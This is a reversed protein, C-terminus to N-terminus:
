ELIIRHSHTYVNMKQKRVFCVLTVGTKEAAIIGSRIPAAKTVLIPIGMRAAKLVMDAPQRGSSVLVSKSFDSKLEIGVGIVKDLTNHRGVDEALTVFQSDEFLAAVHVGGTLQFLTGENLRQVMQIISRAKIQYKSNVYCQPEGSIIQYFKNVTLGCATTFLRSVSVVKLKMNDIPRSTIVNVNEQNVSLQIIEDLSELIGEDFLWGLVLEKQMEPTALLTIIYEDNIFINVPMEIAVLDHVRKKTKIQNDIKEVSVTVSM